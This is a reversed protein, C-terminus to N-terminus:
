PIFFTGPLTVTTLFSWQGASCPAARCTDAAYCDYVIEASRIDSPDGLVDIPRCQLFVAGGNTRFVNGTLELPWNDELSLSIAWRESGVDKQVLITSPGQHTIQIGSERAAALPPLSWHLSSFLLLLFLNRMPLRRSPTLNRVESPYQVAFQITSARLDRSSVEIRWFSDFKSNEILFTV